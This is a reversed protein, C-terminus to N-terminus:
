QPAYFVRFPSYPLPNANAANQGYLTPYLSILPSPYRLAARRQLYQNVIPIPVYSLNPYLTPNPLQYGLANEFNPTIHPLKNFDTGYPFHSEVPEVQKQYDIENIEDKNKESESRRKLSDSKHAYTEDNEVKDENDFDDDVDVSSEIGKDSIRAEALFDPGVLVDADADEDNSLHVLGYKGRSPLVANGRASLNKLKAPLSLGLGSIDSPKLGAIATAV